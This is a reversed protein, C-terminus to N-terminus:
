DNYTDENALHPNILKLYLRLLRLTWNRKGQEMDRLYQPQKGIADAMDQVSVRSKERAERLALGIDRAKSKKRGIGDICGCTGPDIAMKMIEVLKM